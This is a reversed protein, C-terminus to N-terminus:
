HSFKKKSWRLFEDLRREREPDDANSTTPAELHGEGLTNRVIECALSKYAVRMSPELKGRAEIAKMTIASIIATEQGWSRGKGQLQIQSLMELLYLEFVRLEVESSILAVLHYAFRRESLQPLLSRLEGTVEKAKRVHAYSEGSLGLELDALTNLAKQVRLDVGEEFPLDRYAKGLPIEDQSRLPKGCATCIALFASIAFLATLRLRKGIEADM